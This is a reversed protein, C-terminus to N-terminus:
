GLKLGQDFVYFISTKNFSYILRTKLSDEKLRVQVGLTQSGTGPPLRRLPLPGKDIKVHILLSPSNVLTFFLFPIRENTKSTEEQRVRGMYVFEYHRSYVDM